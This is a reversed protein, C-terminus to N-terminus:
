AARKIRGELGSLAKELTLAHQFHENTVAVYGNIIKFDYGRKRHIWSARYIKINNISAILECFVNYFGGICEVAIRVKVPCSIRFFHIEMPYRCSKSYGDWDLEKYLYKSKQPMGAAYEIRYHAPYGVAKIIVKKILEKNCEDIRTVYRNSIPQRYRDIIKIRETWIAARSQRKKEVDAWFEAKNRYRGKYMYAKVDSKRLRM